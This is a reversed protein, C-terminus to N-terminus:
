VEREKGIERGEGRGGEGGGGGGGAILHLEGWLLCVAHGDQVNGSPDCLAEVGSHYVGVAVVQLGGLCFQSLEQLLPPHRYIKQGGETTSGERKGIM